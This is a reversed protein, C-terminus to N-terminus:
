LGLYGEKKLNALYEGVLYFLTSLSYTQVGFILKHYFEIFDDFKLATPMYSYASPAYIYEGLMFSEVIRPSAFEDDQYKPKTINLSARSYALRSKYFQIRSDRDFVGFPYKDWNKGLVLINTFYNRRKIELLYELLSPAKLYNNGDYAFTVTPEKVSLNNVQELLISSTPSIKLAEVPYSQNKNFFTLVHINSVTKGLWFKPDSMLEADSDILYIQKNADLAKEIAREYTEVDLGKMDNLRSANEFRHKLFIVDYKSFDPLNLERGNPAYCTEIKSTIISRRIENHFIKLPAVSPVNYFLIDFKDVGFAKSLSDIFNLQYLPHGPFPDDHEVINGFYGYLAKTM